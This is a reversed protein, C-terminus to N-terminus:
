KFDSTSDRRCDQKSLNSQTEVWYDIFRHVVIERAQGQTFDSNRSHIENRGQVNNVNTFM